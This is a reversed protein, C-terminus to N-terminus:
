KRVAEQPLLRQLTATVKDPDVPKSLFETSGVMKARVRDVVGDNSTLIVVPVDKLSSVRRIQSCVEYGNVVPMMLDLFIIDPKNKLLLPITQLPDKTSIFRCGQATVVSELMKAVLPSDDICAVLPLPMDSPAPQSVKPPQPVNVPELCIETTVSGGEPMVDACTRLALIGTNVYPMLSQALAVPDQQMKLALSRLTRKGDILTTLLQFVSASVQRQLLEPRRIVPALTPHLTELGADQWRYWEQQAKNLIQDVKFFTLPDELRSQPDRQIEVQASGSENILTSERAQLIDFIVEVLAAEILALMAEREIRQRRLLGILLGYERCNEKSEISALEVEDVDPCYQSLLRRWRDGPHSGGAQWVLRGLCFYLSWTTGEGVHIDCRGTFRETGLRSLQDAISHHQLHPPSAAFQTTAM